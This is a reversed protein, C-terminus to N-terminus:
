KSKNKLNANEIILVKDAYKFLNSNHTVCIILSNKYKSKIFHIIKKSTDSDLASTFEDL